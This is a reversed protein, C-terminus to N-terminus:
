CLCSHATLGHVANCLLLLVYLLLMYLLLLLLRSLLAALEDARNRDTGAATCTPVKFFAAAAAM